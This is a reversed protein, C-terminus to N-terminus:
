ARGRRGHSGRYIVTATTRTPVRLRTCPGSLAFVLAQGRTSMEVGLSM